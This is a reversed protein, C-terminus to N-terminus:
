PWRYGLKLYLTRPPWTAAYALTSGPADLNEENQPRRDTLNELVLKADWPGWGRGALLSFRPLGPDPRADPPLPEAAGPVFGTFPGFNRTQVRGEARAYFGASLRRTLALRASWPAPLSPFAGLTTGDAAIVRGNADRVTSTYHADVYGLAALASWPGDVWQLDLDFGRSVATGINATYTHGCADHLQDQIGNWRIYFVSGNAALRGDRTAVKAGWEYNWVADSGYGVPNPVGQCSTPYNGGSERTGKAMALYTYGGPRWEYGLDARPNSRQSSWPSVIHLFSPGGELVGDLYRTTEGNVQGVRTGLGLTWRPAFRLRLQGFASLERVVYWDRESDAVPQPQAVLYTDSALDTHLDRYSSGVFWELRGRAAEGSLRAEAVGIAQQQNIPTAVAQAPDSPYAPGLPNGCGGFFVACAANTQDVQTYNSREFWAGYLELKQRGLSASAKVSAQWLREDTPQDLLKGNVHDHGSAFAPDPLASLGQIYYVPTDHLQTSQYYYDPEIRWADSPQWALSLHLVRARVRNAHADSVHGDFPDVRDVFGPEDQQMAAAHLGLTGPLLPADAQVAVGQGLGGEGNAALTASAVLRRRDVDAVIPIFRVTGGMSNNGFYTSQPGRLLEVRQMDFGLPYPTRFPNLPMQLPTDGLSLGTTATGKDTSIGRLMTRTLLVSGYETDYTYGFGPMASALDDIGMVGAPRVDDPDLVQVSVPIRGLPEERKTATVLVEDLTATRADGPMAMAAASAGESAQAATAAARRARPAAVIRWTTATLSQAELGTGALMRRLAALPEIGAPVEASSKGDLVRSVYLLNLHTQAIFSRLAVDLPQAAIPAVLAGVPEAAPLTCPLLLLAVWAWARARFRRRIM